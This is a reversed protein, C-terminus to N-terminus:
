TMAAISCPSRPAISVVAHLAEGSQVLNSRNAPKAKRFEVFQRRPSRWQWCLSRQAQRTLKAGTARKARM